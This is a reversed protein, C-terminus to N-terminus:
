ERIREISCPQCFGIHIHGTAIRSGKELEWLMRVTDLSLHDASEHHLLHCDARHVMPVGIRSEHHIVFEQQDPVHRLQWPAMDWESSPIYPITTVDNSM